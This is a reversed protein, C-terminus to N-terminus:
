NLALLIISFLVSFCIVGNFQWMFRSCAKCFHSTLMGFVDVEDSALEIEKL